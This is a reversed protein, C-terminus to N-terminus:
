CWASLHFIIPWCATYGRRNKMKHSLQIV